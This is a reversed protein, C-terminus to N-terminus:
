AASKGRSMVYLMAGEAEHDSPESPLPSDAPLENQNRLLQEIAEAAQRFINKPNTDEGMLHLQALLETYNKM